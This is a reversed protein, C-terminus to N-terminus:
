KFRKLAVGNPLVHLDEKFQKAIKRRNEQSKDLPFWKKSKSYNVLRKAEKLRSDGPTLSAYIENQNLWFAKYLYTQISINRYQNTLSTCYGYTKDNWKKDKHMRWANTMWIILSTSEREDPTLNHFYESWAGDTTYPLISALWDELTNYKQFKQTIKTVKWTKRNVDTDKGTYYNDTKTTINYANYGRNKIHDSDVQDWKVETLYRTIMYMLPLKVSNPNNKYYNAHVKHLIPYSHDFFDRVHQITSIKEIQEKSFKPTSHLLDNIKKDQAFALGAEVNHLLRAEQDVIFYKNNQKIKKTNLAQKPTILVRKKLPTFNDNLVAKEAAVRDDLDFVIVDWPKYREKIITNNEITLKSKKDKNVTETIHNQLEGKITTPIIVDAILDINAKDPTSLIAKTAEEETNMQINKVKSSSTEITEIIENNVMNEKSDHELKNSEELLADYTVSKDWGNKNEISIEMAQEVEAISLDITEAKWSGMYMLLAIWLAYWWSYSIKKLLNEKSLPIKELSAWYNKIAQFIEQNNTLDLKEFLEKHNKIMYNRIEDNDAPLLYQELDM